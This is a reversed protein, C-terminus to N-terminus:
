AHAGGAQVRGATGISGCASAAASAGVRFQESRLPSSKLPGIRGPGAGENRGAQLALLIKPLGGLHPLTKVLKMPERCNPCLPPAPADSSMRCASIANPTFDERQYDIPTAGLERILAAHAGHATGWVELGALRGCQDRLRAMEEDSVGALAFSDKGTGGAADIWAIYKVSSNPLVAASTVALATLV